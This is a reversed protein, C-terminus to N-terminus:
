GLSLLFQRIANNIPLTFTSFATRLGFLAAEEQCTALQFTTGITTIALLLWKRRTHWKKM